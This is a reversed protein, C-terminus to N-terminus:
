VDAADLSGIVTGPRAGTKISFEPDIGLHVNPLKLYKELVPIETQVDSLGLQIDLFVLAKNKKAMKLVKDIETNPMRARYKGDKGPGAQAVVAIYHLAPIAPTAPDAEEWKKIEVDLRRLVEEESYEGLIGMNRSYLNGYYAVIRNFPLIAGALPYVTKVPWLNAATSTTTSSNNAIALLKKDYAVSDFTPTLPNKLIEKPETVFDNKILAIQRIKFINTTIYILGFALVFIILGMIIRPHKSKPNPNLDDVM